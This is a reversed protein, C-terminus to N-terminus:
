APCAGSLEDARARETGTLTRRVKHDHSAEGVITFSVVRVRQVPCVPAAAGPGSNCPKDCYGGMDLDESAVNIDFDVIRVSEPDTIPQWNPEGATQGLQLYLVKASKDWKVGFFENNAPAAGGSGVAYSYRLSTARDNNSKTIASYGNAAVTQASHESPSGVASPPAWVGSASSGNYGARRLDQQLLDAASRLDQQIQTEQMLRRHESIQNVAVLSAGATVIMGITIGVMLEVMSLGRQGRHFSNLRM